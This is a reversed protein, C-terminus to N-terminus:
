SRSSARAARGKKPKPKPKARAKARRARRAATLRRREAERLGAITNMGVALEQQGAREQTRQELLGSAVVQLAGRVMQLEAQAQWYDDGRLRALPESWRRLIPALKATPSVGAVERHKEMAAVFAAADDGIERGRGAGRAVRLINAALQVLAGEVETMARRAALEAETNESVIYM